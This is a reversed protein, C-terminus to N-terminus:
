PKARLLKLFEDFNEAVSVTIDDYRVERGESRSEELRFYEDLSKRALNVVVRPRSKGEYIFALLDIIGDEGIGMEDPHHERYYLNAFPLLKEGSFVQMCPGEEDIRTLVSWDIRIDRDRNEWSLREPPELTSKEDVLTLFRGVRYTKGDQADFYQKGPIGGHWQQIHQLYAPDFKNGRYTEIFRVVRMDAPGCLSSMDYNLDVMDAGKAM